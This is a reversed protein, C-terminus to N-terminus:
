ESEEHRRLSPGHPWCLLHSAAHRGFDVSATLDHTSLVKYRSLLLKVHSDARTTVTPRSHLRRWSPCTARDLGQHHRTPHRDRSRFRRRRPCGARIGSLVLSSPAYDRRRSVWMGPALRSSQSPRSSSGSITSSMGTVRRKPACRRPAAPRTRSAPRSRQLSHCDDRRAEYEPGRRQRESGLRVSARPM